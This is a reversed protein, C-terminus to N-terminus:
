LGLKFLIYTGLIMTPLTILWVIYKKIIENFSLSGNELTEEMDDVRKGIAKVDKRLEDQTMNLKTLNVNINNLTENTDDLQKQQLKNIEQQQESVVTLRSLLENNGELRETRKKM